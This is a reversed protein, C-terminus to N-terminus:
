LINSILCFLRLWQLLRLLHRASNLRLVLKKGEEKLAVGEMM